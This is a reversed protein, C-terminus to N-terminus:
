VLKTILVSFEIIYLTVYKWDGEVRKLYNSGATLQTVSYLRDIYEFLYLVTHIICKHDDQVSSDLLFICSINFKQKGAIKYCYYFLTLLLELSKILKLAQSKM